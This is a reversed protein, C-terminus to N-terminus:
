ADARPTKAVAITSFREVARQWRAEELADQGDEYLQEDREKRSAERDAQAQERERAAQERDRQRQERAEPDAARASRIEQEAPLGNAPPAAATPAAFLLGTLASAAIHMGVSIMIQEEVTGCM